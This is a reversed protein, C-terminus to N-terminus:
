DNLLINEGKPVYKSSLQQMIIDIPQLLTQCSSKNLKSVLSDINPIHVQITIWSM